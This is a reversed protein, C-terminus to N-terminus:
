DSGLGALWGDAGGVRRVKIVLRNGGMLAPQQTVAAVDGVGVRHLVVNDLGVFELRDPYLALVGPRDKVLGYLSCPATM